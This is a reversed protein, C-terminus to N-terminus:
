VTEVFSSYSTFCVLRSNLAVKGGWYRRPESVQSGEETGGVIRFGFGTQHRVLTVALELYQHSGAPRGGRPVASPAPQEHEFSTSQKRGRAGRDSGPPESGPGGGGPGPGVGPVGPGPIPGPASTPPAFQGYAAYQDGPYHDFSSGDGPPQQQSYYGDAAYPAGGYSRSALEAGYGRPEVDREDYSSHLGLRGFQSSLQGPGPGPPGPGNARGYGFGSHDAAYDGYQSDNQAGVANRPEFALRADAASTPTALEGYSPTKARRTDVLPTKPRSPIVERPRTSYLEATPTKSRYQGAMPPRRAAADEKRKTKPKTPSHSGGRQVTVTAERDM